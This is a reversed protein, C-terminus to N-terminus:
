YRNTVKYLLNFEQHCTLYCDRCKSTTKRIETYEQSKWIDRLRKTKVNSISINRELFDFCPFVSGDAGVVCTTYGAFCTAPFPKEQFASRMAQLYKASNDIIGDKKKIKLLHYILDDALDHDKDSFCLQDSREEKNAILGSFMVPLFSVADAGLSKSIHIIDPATRLSQRSLVSAVTLRINKKLKNRVKVITKIGEIAKNYAGNVGRLYDNTKPDSSDVSVAISVLGAEILDIVNQENLLFGNTSIHVPLKRKSIHQVLPITHESLMPEGGSIGIGSVGIQLMEDVIQIWNELSLEKKRNGRQKIDCMICASNCRYTPTIIGEVPGCLPYHFEQSLPIMLAKYLQSLLWIINGKKFSDLAAHIHRARM